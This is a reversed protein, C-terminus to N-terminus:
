RIAALSQEAQQRLGQLGVEHAFPTQAAPRAQPRRALTLRNCALCALVVLCLLVQVGDRLTELTLSEFLGM